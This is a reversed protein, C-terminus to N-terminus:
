AYAFADEAARRAAEVNSQSSDYDASSIYHASELFAMCVTDWLDPSPIGEEKMKDKPEIHYRAKEDFFYPIKSAQDLLDQVHQNSFTIRTDKVAEAALVSCQARLNFFRDKNKKKFCPNGWNIKVVNPCGLNELMKAFQIGQGGVDVLITCNSLRQTYHFVEGAIHQWDLANSFIPVDMIDVRRPDADIRDGNGIVRAYTGVTKDRFVGAAVDIIFLNGYPEGASITREAGVLKEVQSRGLLFRESQEPFLGLVRIQYEVSDRGGSEKERENLWKTTAFPSRESNFRLAHWSGGNRASLKHHSAHHRGSSRVGQSAILTRNCPQTQTGDIVDFHDDSVGAAEDVIILQAWRHKGAIGVSQGKALAVRGVFWQEEFGTVYVRTKTIMFYDCLWSHPGNAMAIKSDQMEKWVGDAVQQLNPAGIYTNSGIELKGDYVAYPYCLLHWLAIRGFSNTKGTSTGSVVSVKADMPEMAQYLDIQDASPSVGCVEVAFRLPDFQYREVFEPYRPDDLLRKKAM